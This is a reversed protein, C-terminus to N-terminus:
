YFKRSINFGIFWGEPGQTGRAIQGPTTGLDNSFNIQFAHGGVRKEIAFTAHHDANPGGEFGAVRPTFEGLLSVGRGIHVRAGLGVMFTQDEDESAGGGVGINTNAMFTPVAYLAAREGLPLSIVLAVRPQMEDHFNELGEVSAALALGVPHEDPQWLDQQAFFEITRDSTRYVGLQTGSAVAFRYEMGIQAGGDFGFADGALDGLDGQGLPRAFRHTVRFASKHRPLRATTPLNILMFEPEVPNPELDDREAPPAPSAAAEPAPSPTADAPRDQAQAAIPPALLAALILAALPNSPTRRSRRMADRDTTM